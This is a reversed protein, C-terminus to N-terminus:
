NDNFVKPPNGSDVWLRWLRRELAAAWRLSLQSDVWNSRREFDVGSRGVFPGFGARRRFARRAGIDSPGSVRAVPVVQTTSRLM